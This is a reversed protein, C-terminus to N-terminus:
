KWVTVNFTLSQVPTTVFNTILAAAIVGQGTFCITSGTPPVIVKTTYATDNLCAQYSPSSVDPESVQGSTGVELYVGGLYELDAQSGDALNIPLAPNDGFNIGYGIAVSVDYHALVSGAVVSPTATAQPPEPSSSVPRPPAPSRTAAPKSPSSSSMLAVVLGIVAAISGLVSWFAVHRPNLFRDMIKM